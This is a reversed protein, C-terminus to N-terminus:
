LKPSISKVMHNALQFRTQSLTVLIAKSLKRPNPSPDTLIAIKCITIFISSVVLNEMAPSLSYYKQELLNQFLITGELIQLFLVILHLYSIYYTLFTSM